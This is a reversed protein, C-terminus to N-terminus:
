NWMDNRGQMWCVYIVQHIFCNKGHACLNFVMSVYFWISCHCFQMSISIRICSIRLPPSLISDANHLFFWSGLWCFNSFYIVIRWCLCSLSLHFFLRSGLWCFNFFYVVICWALLVIVYAVFFRSKHYSVSINILCGVCIVKDYYM